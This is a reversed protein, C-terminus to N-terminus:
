ELHLRVLALYLPLHSVKQSMDSSATLSLRDSSQNAQSIIWNTAITGNQVASGLGKLKFGAERLQAKLLSNYIELHWLAM